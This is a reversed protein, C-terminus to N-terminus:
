APDADSLEEHSLQPALSEPLVKGDDPAAPGAISLIEELWGLQQANLKTIDIASTTQVQIAGGNPGSLELKKVDLGLLRSRREAVRLLVDASKYNARNRFHTLYIMDLRHLELERVKEVSGILGEASEDLLHNIYKSVQSDHLGLQRAIAKNTMGTIKLDLCKQARERTAISKAAKKGKSGKRM